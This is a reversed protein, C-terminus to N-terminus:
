HSRQKQIKSSIKKIDIPLKTSACRLQNTMNKDLLRSRCKTKVLNLKSFYSECRYTTGFASIICMILRRLNPFQDELIYKQYYEIKNSGEYLCKLEINSQLEILEMQLNPPASEVEVNFPALFIKFIEEFKQMYSFRTNFEELLNTIETSYKLFNKHSSKYDNSLPFYLRCYGRGSESKSSYSRTCLFQYCATNIKAFM